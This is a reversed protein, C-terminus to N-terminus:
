WHAYKFDQSFSAREGLPVSPIATPDRVEPQEEMLSFNVYHYKSEGRVGLRRTKLGPFLVRVLKGFSAPNLVTIRETACRSAYNAYVRGRPVSGKGKTCVQNIRCAFNIHRPESPLSISYAYWLMAFVQRTRESNPGRENGHLEEAVDQLNRHKNAVFLQRMEMENNASSRSGSKSNGPVGAFSDNDDNGDRDIMQSDDAFSTNGAFSDASMSHRGISHSAHHFSVSQMSSNVPADMSFDRSTQLQSALLLEEPTMQSPAGVLERHGHDNAMWQASYVDGSDPFGHDLNPQTTASHISATSGRSRPRKKAKALVLPDVVSNASSLRQSSNPQLYAAPSHM